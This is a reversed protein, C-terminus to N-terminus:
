AEVIKIGADSLAAILREIDEPEADVAPGCLETLQDFTIEGKPEGLEIARRIIVSIRM